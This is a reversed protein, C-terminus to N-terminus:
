STSTFRSNIANYLSYHSYVAKSVPALGPEHDTEAESIDDNTNARALADPVRLDRRVTSTPAAARSSSSSRPPLAPVAGALAPGSPVRSARASSGPFTAQPRGPSPSTYAPRPHVEVSRASGPPVVRGKSATSISSEVMPIDPLAGTSLAGAPAACM